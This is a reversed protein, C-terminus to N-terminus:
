GRWYYHPSPIPAPPETVVPGREPPCARHRLRGTRDHYVCRYTAYGPAYAAALTASVAPRGGVATGSTAGWAALTLLALSALAVKGM